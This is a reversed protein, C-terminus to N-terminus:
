CNSRRGWGPYLAHCIASWEDPACFVKASPVKEPWEEEPLLCSEPHLLSELTEVQCLSSLKVIGGLGPPPLGPLLQAATMDHAKRAVEGQYTVTLNPLVEHWLASLSRPVVPEGSEKENVFYSM